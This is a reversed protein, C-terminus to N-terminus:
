FTLRANLNTTNMMGYSYGEKGLQSHIMKAGHQPIQLKETSFINIEKQFQHVDETNATTETLELRPDIMMSNTEPDPTGKKMIDMEIMIEIIKEEMMDETKEETMEEINEEIMEETMGETMEEGIMMRIAEARSITEPNLNAKVEKEIILEQSEM